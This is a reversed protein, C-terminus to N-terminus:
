PSLKTEIGDGVVMLRRALFYPWLSLCNRGSQTAPVSASATMGSPVFHWLWSSSREDWETWAVSPSSVASSDRERSSRDTLASQSSVAASSSSIPATVVVRRDDTVSIAADDCGKGVFVTVVLEIEDVDASRQTVGEPVIADEGQVTPLLDNRLHDVLHEM